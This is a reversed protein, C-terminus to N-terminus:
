TTARSLSQGVEQSSHLWLARVINAAWNSKADHEWALCRVQIFAALSPEFDALQRASVASSIGPLFGGQQGPGDLGAAAALRRQVYLEAAAPTAGTQLIRQRLPWYESATVEVERVQPVRDSRTLPQASLLVSRNFSSCAEPPCPVYQSGCAQSSLMLICSLRCQASPRPSRALVSACSVGSQHWAAPM